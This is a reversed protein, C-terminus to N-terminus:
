HAGSRTGCQQALPPDSLVVKVESEQAAWWQTRASQLYRGHAPPIGFSRTLLPSKTITAQKEENLYEHFSPDASAIASDIADDLRQKELLMRVPEVDAAELTEAAVSAQAAANRAIRARVEATQGRELYGQWAAEPINFPKLYQDYAAQQDLGKEFVQM